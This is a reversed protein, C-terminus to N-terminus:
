CIKFTFNDLECSVLNFDPIFFPVSTVNYCVIRTHPNTEIHNVFAVCQMYYVM